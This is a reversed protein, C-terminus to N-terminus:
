MAGEMVFKAAEGSSTEVASETTAQFMEAMVESNVGNGAEESAKQFAQKEELTSRLNQGFERAKNHSLNKAAKSGSLEAGAVGLNAAKQDKNEGEQYADYLTKGAKAVKVGQYATGVTPEVTSIAAVGASLAMSKSSDSLSTDISYNPTFSSSSSLSSEGYATGAKRRCVPGMGISVSRPNSLPRGCRSCSTM